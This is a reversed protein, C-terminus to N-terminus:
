LTVKKGAQRAAKLIGDNRMRSWVHFQERLSERNRGNGVIETGRTSLLQFVKPEFDHGFSAGRHEAIKCIVVPNVALNKTLLWSRGHYPM